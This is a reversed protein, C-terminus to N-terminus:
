EAFLADTLYVFESPQTKGRWTKDNGVLAVYDADHATAVILAAPMRLHHVARIETARRAISRTVPIFRLHPFDTFFSGVNLPLAM